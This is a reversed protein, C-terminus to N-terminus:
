SRPPDIDIALIEGDLSGIAGHKEDILYCGGTESDRLSRNSTWAERGHCGGVGAERLPDILM